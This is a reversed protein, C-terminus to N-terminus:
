KPVIREYYKNVLKEYKLRYVETASHYCTWASAGLQEGCEQLKVRLLFVHRETAYELNDRLKLADMRFAQITRAHFQWVGIDTYGSGLETYEVCVNEEDCHEKILIVDQKRHINKITSEQMAIAVSRYPDTGYRKSYKSIYNSLEAAFAKDIDPRLKLISCYIPNRSCDAAEARNLLPLLLTLIIALVYQM